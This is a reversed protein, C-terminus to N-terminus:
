LLPQSETADTRAPPARHGLAVEYKM